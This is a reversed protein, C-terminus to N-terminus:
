LIKTTEYFLGYDDDDHDISSKKFKNTLVEQNKKDSQKNLKQFSSEM